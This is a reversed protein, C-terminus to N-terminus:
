RTSPRGSRITRVNGIPTRGRPTSSGGAPVQALSRGGDVAKTSRQRAVDACLELLLDEMVRAPVGASGGKLRSDTDLFRAFATRLHPEPLRRVQELFEGLRYPSIGLTRGVETEASGQRLLDRGKWIRRYQWVLSGLIRLPGEGAELNRALIRLARGLDQASIAATLDFVSAGPEVGRVSDVEAPGVITGTPVYAALKELERRVLYLSGGAMEKLLLVADGHVRVGFRGAEARIWPGLQNEFLPACDVIVAHQRLAQAFKLRGDLKPSTVVLTTTDAPAKFYPVLAEGARAPLKEASKLVVLRRSAFLPAEMVRMLIEEADSEDGHLLESNFVEIGGGETPGVGSDGGAGAGGLVAAKIVSLAQDRLYDEEGELLYLPAPGTKKIASDLEYPKMRASDGQARPLGRENM